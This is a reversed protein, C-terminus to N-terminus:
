SLPFPKTFTASYRLPSILATPASRGAHSSSSIPLLLRSPSSCQSKGRARTYYRHPNIGRKYSRKLRWARSAAWTRFTASISSVRQLFPLPQSAGAKEKQRGTLDGAATTGTSSIRLEPAGAILASHGQQKRCFGVNWEAFEPGEKQQFVESLEACHPCRRLLEVVSSRITAM